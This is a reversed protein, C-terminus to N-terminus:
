FFEGLKHKRLKMALVRAKPLIKFYISMFEEQTVEAKVPLILNYLKESFKDIELEYIINSQSVLRTTM